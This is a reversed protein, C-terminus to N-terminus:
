SAANRIGLIPPLYKELHVAVQDKQKGNHSDDTTEPAFEELSSVVELTRLFGLQCFTSSGTFFSQISIRLAPFSLLPHLTYSSYIGSLNETGSAVPEM